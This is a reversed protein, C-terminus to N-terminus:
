DVLSLSQSIGFLRTSQVPVSLSLYSLPCTPVGVTTWPHTGSVHVVPDVSGILRSGM